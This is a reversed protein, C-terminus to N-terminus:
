LSTEFGSRRQRPKPDNDGGNKVKPITGPKRWVHRKDNLGFLEIKTDDSWLIKNLNRKAFEFRATIHRKSLLPKRRAVVM